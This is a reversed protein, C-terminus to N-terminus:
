LKRLFGFGLNWNPFAKASAMASRDSARRNAPPSKRASAKGAEERKEARAGERYLERRSERACSTDTGAKQAVVPAYRLDSGGVFACIRYFLGAAFGPKLIDTSPTLHTRQGTANLFLERKKLEPWRASTAGFVVTVREFRWARWTKLEGATGVSGIGAFCM